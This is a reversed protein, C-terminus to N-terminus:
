VSSLSRMTKSQASFLPMQLCFPYLALVEFSLGSVPKLMRSSSSPLTRRTSWVMAGSWARLKTTISSFPLRVLVSRLSVAPWKGELLKLFVACTMTPSGVASKLFFVWSCTSLCFCSCDSASNLAFFASAFRFFIIACFCFFNSFSFLLASFSAFFFCSANLFFISSSLLFFSCASFPSAFLSSSSALFSSSAFSFSFSSSSLDESSSSSSFSSSSSVTSKSFTSTKPMLSMRLMPAFVGRKLSKWNSSQVMILKRKSSWKNACAKRWSTSSVSRAPM